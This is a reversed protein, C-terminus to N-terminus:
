VIDQPPIALQLPLPKPPELSTTMPNQLQGLIRRTSHWAHDFALAAFGHLSPFVTVGDVNRRRLEDLLSGALKAPLEFRIFRSDLRGTVSPSSATVPQEFQDQLLGSLDLRTQDLCWVSSRPNPQFQV